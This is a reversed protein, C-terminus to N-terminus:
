GPSFRACGSTSSWQCAPRRSLCAGQGLGGCANKSICGSGLWVCTHHMFQGSETANRQAVCGRLTKRDACPASLPTVRPPSAPPAAARLISFEAGSFTSHFLPASSVAASPIVYDHRAYAIGYPQAVLYVSLVPSTWFALVSRDTIPADRATAVRKSSQYFDVTKSEGWISVLPTRTKMTSLSIGFGWREGSSVNFEFRASASFTWAGRWAYFVDSGTANLFPYPSDQPTPLTLLLNPTQGTPLGAVLGRRAIRELQASTELATMLPEQQRALAAAGAVFPASVSTGSLVQLARGPKAGVVSTGPAILSVCPGFASFPAFNLFSDCAAVSVANIASAPAYRCAGGVYNGSAYVGLVDDLAALDSAIKDLLTSGVATGGSLNLVCPPAGAFTCQEAAWQMGAAAAGVTGEGADGFIKVCTVQANPAVRKIQSAVFTGHGVVDTGTSTGPYFSPGLAVGSLLPHSADCGTDLVFVMIGAGTYKTESFKGGLSIADLVAPQLRLGASPAATLSAAGAAVRRKPEKQQSDYKVTPFFTPKPTPRPTPREEAFVDLSSVAIKTASDEEVFVGSEADPEPPADADFITVFRTTKGRAGAAGPGRKGHHYAVFKKADTPRVALSIFIFLAISFLRRAM